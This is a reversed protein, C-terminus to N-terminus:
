MEHFAVQCDSKNAEDKTSGESHSMIVDNAVPTVTTSRIFGTGCTASLVDVKDPHHAFTISTSVTSSFHKDYITKREGIMVLKRFDDSAFLIFHM